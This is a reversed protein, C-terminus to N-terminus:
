SRGRRRRARELHMVTKCDTCLLVPKDQDLWGFVPTVVAGPPAKSRDYVITPAHGAAGCGACRQETQDASM